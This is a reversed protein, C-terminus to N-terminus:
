AVLTTSLSRLRFPPFMCFANATGNSRDGVDTEVVRDVDPSPTLLIKLVEPAEPRSRPDQDWCRQVLAWLDDTFTPHTPRPLRRGKMIVLAAVSFLHNGFPFAGTFVQTSVFCCYAPAGLV